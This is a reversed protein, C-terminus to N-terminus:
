NRHSNGHTGLPSDLARHIAARGSKEQCRIAVLRWCRCECTCGQPCHFPALPYCNQAVTDRNNSTIWSMLLTRLIIRWNVWTSAPHEDTFYIFYSMHYIWFFSEISVRLYPIVMVFDGHNEWPKWWSKISLDEKQLKRYRHRIFVVVSVVVSNKTRLQLVNCSQPQFSQHHNTSWFFQPLIKM